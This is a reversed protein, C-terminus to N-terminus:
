KKRTGKGAIHNMIIKMIHEQDMEQKPVEGAIEGENLVYLRDCMGLLEPMESSIMVVAKGQQALSNIISYIEFKAGVDIGRTPEDLILVDPDSLMWKALVVKQQNGGSLQGVVKDVSETKINIKDCYEKAAIIEDNKAIVEGKNSFKNHLSALTMNWKIDNILVLGYTKRDEPVYAVKKNIAGQVDKIIIEEGDKIIQGSIKSGYTRGFISMALETRGAGMLGAFGVVEGKRVNFNIDNLKKRDPNEEDYVNWNKVEFVIDGKEVKRAPYLNTLERGVMDKIIRNEDIPEHGRHITEITRGDRIATINDSVRSVENLKHSIMISTIGQKKLDLLLELLMNSEEENLASTPEDLILLEVNKELAKAIEIMQQKGVGLDGVLANVNEHDLGIRALVEAAKKQTIDWDIVNKLRVNENGLFINEAISLQPILALEQHIIVIGKKESEKIDNFKCVNKNYIIDGGYTGYPYIGSLVNMLTSKGAGNEGCLAHIEGREVTFNVDDLARFGSFEKIIHTMELINDNM